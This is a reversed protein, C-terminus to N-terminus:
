LEEEELKSPQVVTDPVLPTVPEAVPVAISPFTTKQQISKTKLPISTTQM